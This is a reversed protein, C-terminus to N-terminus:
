GALAAADAELTAPTVFGALVTGDPLILANAVTSRLLRGAGWSGSVATTAGEIRALQRPGLSFVGVTAWDSGVFRLDGLGSSGSPDREGGRIVKTITTAGSPVAFVSAAPTAFSISTFGVTLAPASQGAADVTIRLPFGNAADVAIEVRSVTSAQASDGTPALVLEYAAVGAVRVPASVAVSTQHRAVGTLLRAAVTAPDPTPASSPPTTAEPAEFVYHVVKQTSSDWSWAQNGQRLLDTESLPGTAAVRQEAPGDAWVDFDQTGSLLTTPNLSTAAPVGQGADGTVEGLSPLGLDPTWQVVGSFTEVQDDLVKTLLQRASETPLRPTAGAVLSPLASGGAVLAAVVFPAALRSRRGLM